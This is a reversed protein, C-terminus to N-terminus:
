GGTAATALYNKMQTQMSSAASAPSLSGGFVASNTQYWYSCITGPMINDFAEGLTYHQM